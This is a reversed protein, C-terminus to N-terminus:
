CCSMELQWSQWVGHRVPRSKICLPAALAADCTAGAVVCELKAIRGLSCHTSTARCLLQVLQVLFLLFQVNLWFCVNVGEGLRSHARALALGNNSVEDDLQQAQIHTVCREGTSAHNATVQM